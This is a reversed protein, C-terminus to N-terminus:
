WLPVSARLLIASFDKQESTKKETGRHHLRHRKLTLAEWVSRSSVVM